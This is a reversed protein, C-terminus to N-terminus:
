EHPVQTQRAPHRGCWDKNGSTHPWGDVGHNERPPHIRCQGDDETGFAVNGLTQWWPCTKCTADSM